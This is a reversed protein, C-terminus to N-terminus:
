WLTHCSEWSTSGKGKSQGSQNLLKLVTRERYFYDASRLSYRQDKILM